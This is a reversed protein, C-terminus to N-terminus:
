LSFLSLSLFFLFTTMKVKATSPHSSRLWYWRCCFYQRRKKNKNQSAVLPPASYNEQIVLGRECLGLWIFSTFLFMWYDVYEGLFGRVAHKIAGVEGRGWGGGWGSVMALFFISHNISSWAKKDDYSKAGGGGGWGGERPNTYSSRRFVPLSLFLCMMSHSPLSAPSSWIMRGPSLRTRQYIYEISEAHGGIIILGDSM